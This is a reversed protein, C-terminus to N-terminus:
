IVHLITTMTVNALSQIHHLWLLWLILCDWVMAASLQFDHRWSVFKFQLWKLITSAISNFIVANLDEQIDNCGYWIEHFHVLHHTYMCAGVRGRVCACVVGGVCVCVRVCACVCVCVCVSGSLALCVSQHNSLGVKMKPFYALVFYANYFLKYM